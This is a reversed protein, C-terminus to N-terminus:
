FFRYQAVEFSVSLATVRVVLRNTSEQVLERSDRWRANAQDRFGAIVALQRAPSGATDEIHIKDGPKIEFERRNVLDSGLAKADNDFLDFFDASSFAALDKLEYLRVVVPAPQGNENLNIQPDSIIDIVLKTSTDHLGACGGLAAAAAGVVLRSLIQRRSSRDVCAPGDAAESRLKM